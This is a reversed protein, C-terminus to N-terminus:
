GHEQGAYDMTWDDMGVGHLLWAPLCDLVLADMGSVYPRAHESCGITLAVMGM